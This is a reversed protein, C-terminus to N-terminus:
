HKRKHARLNSKFRFAINCTDCKFPKAGSHLRMHENLYSSSSFEKFCMHCKIPNDYNQQLPIDQIVNNKIENSVGDITTHNEFIHEGLIINTDFQLGCDHCKYKVTHKTKTHKQLTINDVFKMKCIQCSYKLLVKNTTIVNENINKNTNVGDNNQLLITEHKQRYHERYSYKHKFTRGCINCTTCGNARAHITKIHRGLNANNSYSKGCLNCRFGSDEPSKRRRKKNINDPNQQITDIEVPKNKKLNANDDTNFNTTDSLNHVNILHVKRNYATSYTNKCIHCEFRISKTYLEKAHNSTFEPLNRKCHRRCIKSFALHKKWHYILNYEKKCYGCKFKNQPQISDIKLKRQQQSNNNKSIGIGNNGM